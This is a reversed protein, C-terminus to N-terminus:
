TNFILERDAVITAEAKELGLDEILDRFNAPTVPTFSKTEPVYDGVRLLIGKQSSFIRAVVEYLCWVRRFPLATPDCIQVFNTSLAVTSELDELEDMSRSHQNIAFADVWCHLSAPNKKNKEALDKIATVLLGWKNRWTHSIFLRPPGVEDENISKVGYAPLSVWSCEFGATKPKVIQMVVEGSSMDWCDHEETFRLLFALSVSRKAVDPLSAYKDVKTALM